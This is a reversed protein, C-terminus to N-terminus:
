VKLPSIWFFLLKRKLGLTFRSLKDRQSTETADGGCTLGLGRGFLGSHPALDLSSETYPVFEPGRGGHSTKFALTGSEEWNDFHHWCQQPDWSLVHVATHCTVPTHLHWVDNWLKPLPATPAATLSAALSQTLVPHFCEEETTEKICSLRRTVATGTHTPSWM